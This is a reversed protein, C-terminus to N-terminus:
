KSSPDTKNIVAQLDGRNDMDHVFADREAVSDFFLTLPIKHAGELQPLSLLLGDILIPVQEAPITTYGTKGEKRFAGDGMHANVLESPERVTVLLGDNNAKCINVYSPYQSGPHTHAFITPDNM